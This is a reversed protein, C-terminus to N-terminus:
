LKRKLDGASTWYVEGSVLGGSGAAADDAYTATSGSITSTFKMRGNSGWRMIEAGTSTGVCVYSSGFGLYGMPTADVRRRFHQEITGHGSGSFARHTVAELYIGNGGDAIVSTIATSQNGPTSGPASATQTILGTVTIGLGATVLGSASITTAGSIAGSLSLTAASLAGSLSASAAIVSGSATLSAVSVAGSFSGTTVGTLAGAMAVTTTSFTNATLAGAFLGAGATFSSVNSLTNGNADVSATWQGIFNRIANIHAASIIQNSAVLPPLAM